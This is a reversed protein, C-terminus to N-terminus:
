SAFPCVPDLLEGVGCENISVSGGNVANRQQHMSFVVRDENATGNVRKDKWSSAHSDAMMKVTWIM